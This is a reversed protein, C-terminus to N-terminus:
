DLLLIVCNETMDQWYRFTWGWFLNSYRGKKNLGTNDMFENIRTYGTFDRDFIIGLVNDVRTANGTAQAGTAVDFYSPTTQVSMHDGAVSQWFNVPEYTVTRLLDDHFTDALVRTVVQNMEGTNLMVRQYEFPTHRMINGQSPNVHRLITRETLFELTTKLEGALWKAFNGVHEPARVNIDGTEGIYAKYETVLHRVTLPDPNATDLLVKAAIANALLGRAFTEEAQEHKNQIETMVAAWFRSFEEPGSLAVNIQDRFVTIQDGYGESGYFNTQVVKPKRITWQDVSQGDAIVAPDLHVDETMPQDIQNIKRVHNGYRIEDVYLNRVKRTYPRSAFMTRSLVQSISNLIPDYGARLITEAQHVFGATNTAALATQGTVQQYMTNLVTTASRWNTMDLAAM